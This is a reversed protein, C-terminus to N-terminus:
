VILIELYMKKMFDLIGILKEEIKLIKCKAIMLHEDNKLVDLTNISYKLSNELGNTGREEM